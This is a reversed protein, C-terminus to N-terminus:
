HGGFHISIGSHVRYLNSRYSRDFRNDHKFLTLVDAGFRIAARRSFFVEVGGGPAVSFYTVTDAAFPLLHRERIKWRAIGVLLEGYPRVTGTPRSVRPGAHISEYRCDYIGGGVASFDDRSTSIALAGAVAFWRSIRHAVSLTAGSAFTQSWEADRLFTYTVSVSTTPTQASGVAPLCGILAVALLARWVSMGGARTM